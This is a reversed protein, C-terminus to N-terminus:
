AKLEVPAVVIEYQMSSLVIEYIGPVVGEFAFEGLENTATIGHESTNQVLQVVFIDSLAVHIALLQGNLDFQRDQPRLRVNLIVDAIDTYYLLQRRSVPVSVGRTGTMALGPGSSGISPALRAVLRQLVNPTRRERAYAEFAGFVAQRATNPPEVLVTGASTRLFARMWDVTARIGDDAQAVYDAILNAESEPLRNELWDMLRAFSPSNPTM